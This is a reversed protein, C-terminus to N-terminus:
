KLELNFEYNVMFNEPLLALFDFGDHDEMIKLPDRDFRVKCSYGHKNSLSEALAILVHVHGNSDWIFPIIGEWKKFFRYKHACEYRSGVNSKFLGAKYTLVSLNKLM